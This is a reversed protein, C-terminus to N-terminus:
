AAKGPAVLHMARPPNTDLVGGGSRKTYLPFILSASNGEPPARHGALADIDLKEGAAILQRKYKRVARKDKAQWFLVFLIPAAVVIAVIIFRIQRSRSSM